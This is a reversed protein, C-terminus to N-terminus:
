RRKKYPEVVNFGLKRALTMGETDDFHMCYVKDRLEYPINKDLIDLSLHPMGEYSKVFTSELYIKNLNRKERIISNIYELENTDGSYYVLGRESNFLIGYSDMGEDHVTPIFKVSSFTKFKGTLEESNIVNYMYFKVGLEYLIIKLSSIYEVNDDVVINLKINKRYHCYYILSALSGVHDPHLHTILVNIDKINDLLNNEILTGFVTEGCDILLMNNNEILFASTNGEKPNFASGRGLFELM